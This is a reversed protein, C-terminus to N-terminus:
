VEIEITKEFVFILYSELQDRSLKLFSSSADCVQHSIKLAVCGVIAGKKRDLSCLPTPLLSSDAPPESVWFYTQESPISDGADEIRRLPLIFLSPLSHCVESFSIQYKTLM